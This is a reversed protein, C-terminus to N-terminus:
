LLYLNFHVRTSCLRANNIPFLNILFDAEIVKRTNSVIKEESFLKDDVVADNRKQQLTLGFISRTEMEPPEYNPDM